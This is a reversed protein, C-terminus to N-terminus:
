TGPRTAAISQFTREIAADVAANQQDGTGAQMVHVFERLEADTATAAFQSIVPTLQVIPPASSCERCTVGFVGSSTRSMFHWSPTWTIGRSRLRAELASVTVRPGSSICYVWVRNSTSSGTVPDIRFEDQRLPIEFLAWTLFVLAVFVGATRWPLRWRRRATNPLAYDLLPLTM